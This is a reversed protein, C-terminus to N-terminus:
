RLPPDGFEDIEQMMCIALGCHNFDCVCCRGILASGRTIPGQQWCVDQAYEAGASNKPCSEFRLQDRVQEFFWQMHDQLLELLRSVGPNRENVAPFTLQCPRRSDDIVESLASQRGEQSEPMSTEPLDEATCFRRLASASRM